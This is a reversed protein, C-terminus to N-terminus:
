RLGGGLQRGFGALEDPQRAVRSRPRGFFSLIVLLIFAFMLSAVAVAISVGGNAKGVLFIAVQLNEYNLLNAITFEGLVVAVSLLCANLLASWMNPVIIRGMVTAWGAGLSRAAESLTKVDIAALGTHLTRYTYPLVLVLYVFALTFISESVNISLWRYEPALGAVLVIAPITLPLLCLFEIVRNLRPLRLRVWIMTPVLLLLMGVSTIVALVLSALIAAVLDPTQFITQWAALTRPADGNGRTSFEFMAGIPILFFAGFALFVVVRFVQLKLRRNRSM